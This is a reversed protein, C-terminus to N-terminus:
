EVLEGNVRNKQIMEFVHVVAATRTEVGLKVYVHELHKSVTRPSISLIMGIESNAKGMAVWGLVEAERESLGKGQLAAAAARNEMWM